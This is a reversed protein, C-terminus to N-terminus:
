TGEHFFQQSHDCHFRRPLYVHVRRHYLRVGTKEAHVRSPIGDQAGPRCQRREVAGVMLAVATYIGGAWGVALFILSTAMLTAITMGSTPNSSVGIEGVLRSSVTAFFFGFVIILVAAILNGFLHGPHIVLNLLLYIVIFAIAIGVIVFSIPLDRSIRSVAERAEKDGRLEALSDRFSHVITPMARALNIVGGAVVAGAGIYRVFKDWLVSYSTLEGITTTVIAGGEEITIPTSAGFFKILPILLMWSLFGGAVMISATRPGIIYGVGLLEPSVEGIVTSGSYFSPRWLPTEKWFRFVSMLVKYVFGVGAGWFVPAAHAGSKEATKIV